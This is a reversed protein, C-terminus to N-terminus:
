GYVSLLESQPLEDNLFNFETVYYLMLPSKLTIHKRYYVVCRFRFRLLYVSVALALM